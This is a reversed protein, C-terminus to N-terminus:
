PLGLWLKVAAEVEALTATDCVALRRILQVDPLSNIGQADFAGADFKPAHHLVEYDTGRMSTTRNVFTVLAREDDKYVVSLVSCTQGEPSQGFRCALNRWAQTNNTGSCDKGKRKM